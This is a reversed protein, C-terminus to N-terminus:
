LIYILRRGEVRIDESLRKYLPSSERAVRNASPAISSARHMDPLDKRGFVKFVYIFVGVWILHLLERCKWICRWLCLSCKNMRISVKRYRKNM